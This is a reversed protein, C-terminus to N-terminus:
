AHRRGMIAEYRALFEAAAREPAWAEIRGSLMPLGLVWKAWEPHVPAMLDRVETALLLGDAAKVSAPMTIDLGFKECVALQVAAEARRYPEMAPDIKIPRPLDILYAESADHLLGWLADEPGSHLSVLVSHQAVSYFPRCHGGFRCLNGLAHAIVNIDVEGALPDLPWFQDGTATQIWDGLRTGTAM